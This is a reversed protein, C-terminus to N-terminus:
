EDSVHGQGAYIAAIAAGAHGTVVQRLPLSLAAQGAAGHHSQLPQLGMPLTGRGFGGQPRKPLAGLPWRLNTVGVGGRRLSLAM